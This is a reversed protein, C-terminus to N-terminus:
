TACLKGRRNQFPVTVLGIHAVESGHESNVPKGPKWQAWDRTALHGNCPKITLRYESARRGMFQGRKVLAIFGKAELEELARKITSKGLGLLRSGEELSLSLEGNNGGWFRSHLELYVKVAAGSLSRFADSRVQNHPLGIFQEEGTSRGKRNTKRGKRSM